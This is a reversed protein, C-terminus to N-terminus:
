LHLDNYLQDFQASDEGERKLEMWMPGYKGVAEDLTLVGHLYKQIIWHTVVNAVLDQGRVVILGKDSVFDAGKSIKDLNNLRRHIFKQGPSVRTELGDFHPVPKSHYVGGEEGEASLRYDMIEKFPSGELQKESWRGPGAQPEGFRGLLGLKPMGKNNASGNRVCFLILLFLAGLLLNRRTLLEEM